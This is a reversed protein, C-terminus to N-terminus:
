GSLFSVIRLDLIDLDGEAITFFFSDETADGWTCAFDGITLPEGYLAWTIADCSGVDPELM